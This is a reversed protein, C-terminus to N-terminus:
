SRCWSATVRCWASRFQLLLTVCGGSRGRWGGRGGFRVGRRLDGGAPQCVGFGAEPFADGEAQVCSLSLLRRIYQPGKASIPPPHHRPALPEQTILSPRPQNPM